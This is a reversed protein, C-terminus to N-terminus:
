RDYKFARWFKYILVPLPTDHRIAIRNLRMPHTQATNLGKKTTVAFKFGAREALKVSTDNHSGYPYCFSEMPIGLQEELTAKSEIIERFQDPEDLDALRPHSYTHSGIEVGQRALDKITDITMLPCPIDGIKVDWENVGGMHNSVVYVTGGFGYKQLLPWGADAFDQSGDDFTLVVPKAPMKSGFLDTVPLSQFGKRRFWKLHSELM